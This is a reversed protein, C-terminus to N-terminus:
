NFGLTHGIGRGIGRIGRGVAGFGGSGRNGGSGRYGGSGRNGGSGGMGGGGSGGMGGSGGGAGVGGGSGGGGGGSAHAQSLQLLTPAAYAAGALLGIRALAQRRGIAKNKANTNSKM